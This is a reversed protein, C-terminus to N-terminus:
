YDDAPPPDSELQRLRMQELENKDETPIYEANPTYRPVPPVMVNDYDLVPESPYLVNEMKQINHKTDLQGGYSNLLQDYIEPLPSSNGEQASEEEKDLDEDKQLRNTGIVVEISMGTVNRLRKLKDVNVLDQFFISSEDDDNIESNNSGRLRRQLMSFKGEASTKSYSSDNTNGGGLIRNSETYVINKRSLNVLVEVYYQFTFYKSPLTLTPFADLPVKLYVTISCEHTEFDLYLPAVTQCIDKRFTEIIDKSGDGVRCIRVLTAILGAPHAYEKYHQMNIKIPIKEGIVFGSEPLDVSISVTKFSSNTTLSSNSGTSNNTKKTLSSSTDQESLNVRSHKLSLPSQLVVSKTNPKPLTGVDVPVLISFKKQCKAIEEDAATGIHGLSCEVHYSISGREFKISTYVKSSPIKMRFPFRHEGKTLGNVVQQEQDNDKGGYIFTHKDFLKESIKTRSTAGTGTKVRVEGILSLKIAINTMDKKLILVSEGTIYENPKWVKHPEDMDLYFEQIDNPSSLRFRANSNNSVLSSNSTVTCPNDTPCRAKKFKGLFGM